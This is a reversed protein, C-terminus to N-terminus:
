VSQLIELLAQKMFPKAIYDSVGVKKAREITEIDKDATMFVVPINKCSHILELTAFGDMEPMQIDLLVLDIPKELLIEMGESGSEAKHVEYQEEEKLMFEVLKLNVPEDDIVLVHKRGSNQQKLEFDTDEDIIDLMVKAIEPDFQSGAGKEIEFRVKDQSMIDRYSRNSTMADYADAVGIIRAIEPINKGDLGNPYGGGDYREHHWKAADAIRNNKSIDKLIHYGAVPHLRIFAFEDETLKGPKCIIWDPIRIKGVDHLLGAYYIEQLEDEDKGMRKAIERAYEAVRKSHGNTYRDKAEVTNSLAIMTSALMENQMSRVGDLKKKVADVQVMEYDVIFQKDECIDGYCELIRKAVRNSNEQDADLLMVILQRESFRASVDSQRLSIEVAQEMKEICYELDASEITEDTDYIVTFLLMQVDRDSREMCRCIFNYIYHFNEFGVKFPGRRREGEQLFGRLVKLDIINDRNEKQKEMFDQYFHYSNKGGQKVYYLAKDAAAYLAKFKRGDRPAMAVGISVTTELEDGMNKLKYATENLIRIAIERAQEQEEIDRVFLIFEDGGIRCAVDKERSIEKLTGALCKLTEDGVIHGYTDNIGKFNDMDMMFLAGKTGHEMMEEVKLETYSRNWLGTLSDQRARQKFDTVEKNKQELRRALNKKFMELELVHSVRSLLVRKRFPKTIFDSAGAELGKSEVDEEHEGTLFIVPIERISANGNSKILELVVFGDVKPMYIDLIILDVRNKQLYPIVEKGDEMWFIEYDEELFKKAIIYSMRDDDVFLIRKKGEGM